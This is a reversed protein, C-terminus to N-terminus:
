PAPRGAPARRTRAPETPRDTFTGVVGAADENPRVEFPLDSVDRGNLMASKLTWTSGPLTQGMVLGQGTVTVRYRNPVVGKVVFTGDASVTALTGGLMMSALMEISSSGTPPPTLSVRTPTVDQPPAASGQFVLKGSVSMGPQLRLVLDSVDVGNVSLDASAWLSATGPTGMMGGLSLLAGAGAGPGQGRGGTAARANVAYQG